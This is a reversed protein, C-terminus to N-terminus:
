EKGGSSETESTAPNLSAPLYRGIADRVAAVLRNIGAAGYSVPDIPASITVKATHGRSVTLRGAPLTRSTGDITVPLIRMGSLIAMRFGGRKFPGLRGTRSRTGEPAVWISMSEQLREHATILTKVAIPRN